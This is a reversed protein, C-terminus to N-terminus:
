DMGFLPVGSSKAVRKLDRDLTALGIGLRLALEMYAADYASLRHQIAIRRIAGSIVPTPPADTVLPLSAYLEHLHEATAQTLQKRRMATVLLNSMEYWWLPPVWVEAEALIIRLFEEALDSREDPLGLAGAMSCDMVWAM